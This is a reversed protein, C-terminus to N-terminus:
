VERAVAENNTSDEDRGKGKLVVLAGSSRGRVKVHREGQERYEKQVISLSLM